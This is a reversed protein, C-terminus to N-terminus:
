KERQSILAILLLILWVVVTWGLLFNLWTIWACNETDRNVAIISPLLYLCVALTILALGFLLNIM